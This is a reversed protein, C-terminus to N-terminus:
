RQGSGLGRVWSLNKPFLIFTGMSDGNNQKNKGRLNWLVLDEGSKDLGQLNCKDGVRVSAKTFIGIVKGGGQPGGAEDM